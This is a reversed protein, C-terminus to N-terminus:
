RVEAGATTSRDEGALTDEKEGEGKGREDTALLLKTSSCGNTCPTKSSTQAEEEVEPESMNGNGRRGGSVEETDVEGDLRTFDLSAPEERCRATKLWSTEERLV